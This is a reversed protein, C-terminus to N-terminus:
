ERVVGGIGKELLDSAFALGANVTNTVANSTITAGSIANIESESNKATQPKIVAFADTKTETYQGIFAEDQAKMGLGATEKISLIEIKTLTGDAKVGLAFQIDGAYGEHSTITMVYGIPTGAADKSICVENFTTQDYGIAILFAKSDAVVHILEENTDDISEAENYVAAYAAAKAEAKAKAIPAKTLDFVFGLGVSGVLTIAFLAIADKIISSKKKNQM